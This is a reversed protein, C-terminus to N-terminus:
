YNSNDGVDLIDRVKLTLQQLTFPKRLFSAGMVGHQVLEDTTYGSMLLVRTEPRIIIAQEAVQRGNQGGPIVMDTLLLDIPAPHSKFLALAESGQRAELVTYGQRKLIQVVVSRTVSEDEVVLVTETGTPMEGRTRPAASAPAGEVRPFDAWFTTGHDLESAFQITGGSQEVISRVTALGLGTGLGEPKTTYFPEFIHQQTEETGDVTTNETRITLVGGHPMADRANLTLNLIVQSM